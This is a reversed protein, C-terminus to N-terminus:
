FDPPLLWMLNNHDGSPVYYRVSMIMDAGNFKRDEGCYLHQGNGCRTLEVDRCISKNDGILNVNNYYIHNRERGHRGAPLYVMRSSSASLFLAHDDLTTVEAWRYYNRTNRIKVLEFVKFFFGKNEQSLWARKAMLLKDGHKLIYSIDFELGECKPLQNVRLTRAESVVPNGQKTMHIDHVLLDSRRLGYLKGRCFAIDDYSSTFSQLMWPNSNNGCGVRCVALGDALIAALICRDVTPPESFVLKKIWPTTRQKASLPVEDGSFLNVITLSDVGAVTSAAAVWGGDHFGVPRKGVVVPPLPVGLLKGDVPCFVRKATGGERPSIILWPITPPPPQLSRVVRWSRCVATFLVRGLPSAIRAYIEGLLDRPLKSWAASAIMQAAM